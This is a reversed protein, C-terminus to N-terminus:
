HFLYIFYQTYKRLYETKSSLHVQLHMDLKLSDPLTNLEFVNRWKGTAPCCTDRTCVTFVTNRDKWNAFKTQM